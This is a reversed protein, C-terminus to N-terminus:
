LDNIILQMDEGDSIKQLDHLCLHGCIVTNDPQIRDTNYLLPSKLYNIIENPIIRKTKIKIGLAIM